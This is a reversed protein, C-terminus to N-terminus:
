MSSGPSSDFPPFYTPLEYSRQVPGTIGGKCPERDDVTAHLFHMGISAFDNIADEGVPLPLDSDYRM